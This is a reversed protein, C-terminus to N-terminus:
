PFVKACHRDSHKSGTMPKNITSCSALNMVWSCGYPKSSLKQSPAKLLCRAISSRLFALKIFQLSITGNSNISHASLRPCHLRACNRWGRILPEDQNPSLVRIPWSSLMAPRRSNSSGILGAMLSSTIPYIEDAKVLPQCM